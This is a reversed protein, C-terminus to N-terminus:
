TYLVIIGLICHCIYREIRQSLRTLPGVNGHACCLLTQVGLEGLLLAVPIPTRPMRRWPPLWRMGLSVTDRWLATLCVCSIGM